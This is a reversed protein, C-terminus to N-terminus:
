KKMSFVFWVLATTSKHKLLMTSIWHYLFGPFTLSAGAVIYSVSCVVPNTILFVNEPQHSPVAWRGQKPYVESIVVNFNNLFQIIQVLSRRSFIFVLFYVLKDFTILLSLFYSSLRDFPWRYESHFNKRIRSLDLPLLKCLIRNRINLIDSSSGCSHYLWHSHRRFQLYPTWVGSLNVKRYNIM